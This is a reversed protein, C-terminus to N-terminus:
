RNAFASASRPSLRVSEESQELYDKIYVERIFILVAALLPTAVMVGLFGSLVGMLLQSMLLLPPPVPTQHQQILPTIVNSELLQLVAYLAVVWAVTTMGQSMAMLMSLVLAIVAGVNPIFTLLGTLVGLVPALPVGLLWLMIGTGVGTIGMTAARGQMWQFLTQGMMELVENARRRYSMPFLQCVSTRYQTPRIAIFTAVFFVFAVNMTLGFTTSFANGLVGFIRRTASSLEQADLAEPASPASSDHKTDPVPKTLQDFFPIRSVLSHAVPHRDTWHRIEELSRDLDVESQSIHREIQWAFAAITGLTLIVSTAVVISLCISHSWQTQATVAQAMKTFFLALLLALFSLLFVDSALVLSTAFGITVVVVTIAFVIRRM